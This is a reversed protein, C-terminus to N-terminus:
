APPNITFRFETKGLAVLDGNKLARRTVRVGNIYTGNTSNLDEIITTAGARLVVAHHRSIFDMDIRM